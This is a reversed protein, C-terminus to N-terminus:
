ARFNPLARPFSQAPCRVADFSPCYDRIEARDGSTWVLTLRNGRRYLRAEPPVRLRDPGRSIWLERPRVEITCNGSHVLTGPAVREGSPPFMSRLKAVPGLIHDQEFFCSPLSSMTWSGSALFAGHPAVTSEADPQQATPTPTGVVKGTIRLDPPGGRRAFAVAGIVAVVAAAVV